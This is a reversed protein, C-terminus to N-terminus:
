GDLMASLYIATHNLHLHTSQFCSMVVASIVSQVLISILLNVPVMQHPPLIAVIFHMTNKRNSTQLLSMSKIFGTKIMFLRLYILILGVLKSGM